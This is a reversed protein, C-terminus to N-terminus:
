KKPASRCLACVCLSLSHMQEHLVAFLVCLVWYYSKRRGVKFVVLWQSVHGCPLFLLKATAMRRREHM